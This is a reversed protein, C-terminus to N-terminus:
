RPAVRLAVDALACAAFAVSAFANFTFFAAGIRAKDLRGGPAAYAHEAGLVAMMLVSGVLWGPGRAALIGAGAIALAAVLHLLRAWLLAGQV